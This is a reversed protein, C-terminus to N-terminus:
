TQLAEALTEQLWALFEYVAAAHVFSVDHGDAPSAGAVVDHVRGADDETDVGLRDALVLRVDTLAVVLAVAEPKGLRVQGTTGAGLAAIATDLNAVKRAVLSQETRARFQAALDPDETTGTPLLRHLAPDRAYTPDARGPTEASDFGAVIRDFEDGTLDVAQVPAAAEVTALLERVQVLLGVIVSREVDDLRAAYTAGTGRGKRRFGKAM